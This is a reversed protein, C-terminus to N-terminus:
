ASGGPTFSTSRPMRWTAGSVTSAARAKPEVRAWVRLLTCSGRARGAIVSAILWIIMITSAITIMAPNTPPAPSPRSATVPRALFWVPRPM